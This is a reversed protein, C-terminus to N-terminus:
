YQETSTQVPRTSSYSSQKTSSQVPKSQDPAALLHINLVARYQNPSTQHQWLIFPKEEGSKEVGQFHGWGTPYFVCTPSTWWEKIRQKKFLSDTLNELQLKLYM